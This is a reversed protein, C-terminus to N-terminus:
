WGNSPWGVENIDVGMELNHVTSEQDGDIASLFIDKLTAEELKAKFLAPPPMWTSM